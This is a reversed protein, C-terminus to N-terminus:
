AEQNDHRQDEKVAREILASLHAGQQVSKDYFFHLIPVSRLQMSKGLLMRLFGSADNLIKLNQENSGMVTIFIKAHGIDRSVDVGTITVLGIRPDKIERRIM